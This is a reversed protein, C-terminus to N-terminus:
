TNPNFCVKYAGLFYIIGQPSTYGGSAGGATKGAISVAKSAVEM